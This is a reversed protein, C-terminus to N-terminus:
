AAATGSHAPMRLVGADGSLLSAALRKRNASELERSRGLELNSRFATLPM